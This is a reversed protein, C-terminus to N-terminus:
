VQTLISVTMNKESAEDILRTLEEYPLPSCPCLAPTLPEEVVSLLLPTM